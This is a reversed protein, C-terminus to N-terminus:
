SIIINHLLCAFHFIFASNQSKYVPLVACLMVRFSAWECNGFPPRPTLPGIEAFDECRGERTCPRVRFYYEEGEILGYNQYVRKAFADVKGSLRFTPQDSFRTEIAYATIEKTNGMPEDWTLEISDWSYALVRLNQPASPPASHLFSHVSHICPIHICVFHGWTFYIYPGSRSVLLIWLGLLVVDVDGTVGLIVQFLLKSLLCKCKSNVTKQTSLFVFKDYKDTTKIIIVYLTIKWDTSISHKTCYFTRYLPFCMNGVFLHVPLCFRCALFLWIGRFSPLPM